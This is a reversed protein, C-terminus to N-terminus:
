DANVIPYEAIREPLYRLYGEPDIGNLKETGLLSYIIAAREGGADSGALSITRAVL